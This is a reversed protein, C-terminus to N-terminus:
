ASKRQRSREFVEQLNANNVAAGAALLKERYTLMWRALMARASEEIWQDIEIMVARSLNARRNLSALEFDQLSTLSAELVFDLPPIAPDPDRM